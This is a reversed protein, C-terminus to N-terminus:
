PAETGSAAAAVEARKDKSFRIDEAREIFITDECINKAHDGVRELFRAIFILHIYGELEVHQSEMVAIIERDLAKEAADLEKDLLRAAAAAEPDANLFAQLSQDLNRDCLSYVPQILKVEPYEPLNNLIRARKAISSAQDAIRELNNAVRITGMVARLDHATPQFKVLIQMGLKDVSKELENVDQDAAIAANCLDTDRELLGRMASALNKRAMSAMALVDGRLKDLSHTYSSLIHEHM